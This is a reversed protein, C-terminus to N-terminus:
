KAASGCDPWRLPRPSDALWFSRTLCVLDGFDRMLFTHGTHTHHLQPPALPAM